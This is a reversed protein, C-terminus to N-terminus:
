VEEKIQNINSANAPGVVNPIKMMEQVDDQFYKQKSKKPVCM